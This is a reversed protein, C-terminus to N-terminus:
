TIIKNINGYELIVSVGVQMTRKCDNPIDYYYIYVINGLQHYITNFQWNRFVLLHDKNYTKSFYERVWRDFEDYFERFIYYEEITKM